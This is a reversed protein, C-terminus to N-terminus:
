RIGSISSYNQLIKSKNKTLSSSNNEVINISENKSINPM